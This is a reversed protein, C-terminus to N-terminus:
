GSRPDAPFTRTWTQGVLGHGFGRHPQEGTLVFGAARYIRRASELVDVTWLTVQRYGSRRAFDLCHGILLTGIGRGRAAPDVLFLRLRATGPADGAVLFVSGARVGDAEVIWGAERSPDHHAAYDAVIGAVMTEFTTDWGFQAAYIEGHAMVVWGLDGPQDALRPTVGATRPDRVVM